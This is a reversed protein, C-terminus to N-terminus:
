QRFAPLGLVCCGELGHTHSLAQRGQVIGLSGPCLSGISLDASMAAAEQLGEELATGVPADAM